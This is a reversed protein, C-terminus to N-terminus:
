VPPAGAPRPAPRGPSIVSFEHQAAAAPAAAAPRCRHQSTPVVFGLAENLRTLEAAEAARGLDRLAQAMWYRSSCLLAHDAPCLAAGEALVGLLMEEAEAPKATLVLCKALGQKIALKKTCAVAGALRAALSLAERYYMGAASWRAAVESLVALGMFSSVMTPHDCGLAQRRLKLVQLHLREAEDYEGDREAASAARLLEAVEASPQAREVAQKAATTFDRWARKTSKGRPTKLGAAQNPPNASGSRMAGRPTHGASAAGGASASRRPVSSRPARRAATASPTPKPTSSRARRTAVIPANPSPSRHHHRAPSAPAFADLGLGFTNDFLRSAVEDYGLKHALQKHKALIEDKPRRGLLEEQRQRRREKQQDDTDYLRPQVKSYGNAQTMKKHRVLLPDRKGELAPRPSPSRAQMYRAGVHRYKRQEKGGGAGAGDGHRPKAALHAAPGEGRLGFQLIRRATAGARAQSRSGQLRLEPRQYEDFVAQPAVRARPPAVAPSGSESRGGASDTCTTVTDCENTYYTFYDNSANSPISEIKSKRRCAPELTVEDEEPAGDSADDAGAGTSGDEKRRGLEAHLRLISENIRRDIENDISPAEAPEAGEARAEPEM